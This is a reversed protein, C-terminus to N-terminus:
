FAEGGDHQDALEAVLEKEIKPFLVRPKRIPTGPVLREKAAEWGDEGGEPGGTPLTVGLTAALEAAGDPVFPAM